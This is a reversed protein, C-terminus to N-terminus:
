TNNLFVNELDCFVHQMVIVVAFFNIHTCFYDNDVTVVVCFLFYVM